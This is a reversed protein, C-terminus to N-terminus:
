IASNNVVHITATMTHEKGPALTVAGSLINSAEVCAMQRWEDNGLDALKAADEQWPNWVVTTLSDQKELRIRRNLVPDVIEVPSQTNVYANDTAQTLQVNGSQLKQKNADRNDLFAVGDLGTIRLNTADGVRNYTHLAEEFRFPSPGTNSVILELKLEAGVTIRHVLRFEFPWWKQTDADSETALTVVVSNQEQTLAELKWAKTRVFGHAPAKADDSKARFWPFCIPIGGRIARGEEWHSQQSLFIVEESGAPQWSTLQAGHLYIEARAAPSTIQVKPLDGNGAVVRAVEATSLNANLADIQKASSM